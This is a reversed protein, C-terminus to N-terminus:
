NLEIVGGGRRELEARYLKESEEFEKRLFPIVAWFPLSTTLAAQLAHGLYPVVVGRGCGVKALCARAMTESTPMFLGAKGKFQLSQTKGVLLGLVEVDRGLMKMERGLSVSLSNMYAKSASYVTLFPFDFTGATSGTNLILAPTNRSLIPLAGRTLQTAFRLNHNALNDLDSYSHDAFPKFARDLMQTGGVNNILVTLRLDQIADVLKDAQQHSDLASSDAIAIRYQTTSHRAQLQRKVSELKSPNRGHLVVHFGHQSLEEAIALGIGDSAGTVLAWNDAGHQYRSISSSRAYLLIFRIILLLCYAILALGIAGAVYWFNNM